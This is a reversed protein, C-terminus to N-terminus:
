RSTTGDSLGLQGYMNNGWAWLSGDTKIALSYNYGASVSLVNDMIKVPSSKLSKTGDGLQGYDNSGWAWLSGDSMVALSHNNSSDIKVWTYKAIDFASSKLPFLFTTLLSFLLFFMLIRDKM